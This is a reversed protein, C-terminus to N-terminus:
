VCAFIFEQAACALTDEFKCFGSASIGCLKSVMEWADESLNKEHLLYVTIELLLETIIRADSPNSADYTALLSSYCSVAEVCNGLGKHLM